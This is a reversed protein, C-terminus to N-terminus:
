KLKPLFETKLYDASKYANANRGNPVMQWLDHWAEHPKLASKYNTPSLSYFVLDNEISNDDMYRVVAENISRNDQHKWINFKNIELQYDIISDRFELIGYLGSVILIHLKSNENKQKYLEKLEDSYFKGGSYREVAPLFLKENIQKKFYTSDVAGM